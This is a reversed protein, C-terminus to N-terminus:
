PVQVAMINPGDLLQRGCDLGGEGFRNGVDVLELVDKVHLVVELLAKRGTTVQFLNGSRVLEVDTSLGVGLTGDLRVDHALTPGIGLLRGRAM